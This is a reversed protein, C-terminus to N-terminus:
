LRTKEVAFETMNEWYRKPMQTMRCRPNERGPVAITGYFMRWLARFRLEEEDPDPLTFREASFIQTKGQEYVLVDGHTKDYILFNEDSLTRM